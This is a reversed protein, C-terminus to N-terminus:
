SYPVYLTNRFTPMYFESAQSNGLLFCVVNLVRRFSSILFQRDQKINFGTKYSPACDAARLSMRYELAPSRKLTSNHSPQLLVLNGCAECRYAVMLDIDALCRNHFNQVAVSAQNYQLRNAACQFVQLLESV